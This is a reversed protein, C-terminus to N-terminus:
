LPSLRNIDWLVKLCNLIDVVIRNRNNPCLKWTNTRNASDNWGIFNFMKPHHTLFLYYIKSFNYKIIFLQNYFLKSIVCHDSNYDVSEKSCIIFENHVTVKHTRSHGFWILLVRKMTTTLLYITEAKLGPFADMGGAWGELAWLRFESKSTSMNQCNERLSNAM